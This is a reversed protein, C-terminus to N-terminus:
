CIIKAKRLSYFDKPHLNIKSLHKVDIWLYDTHEHDLTPIFEKSVTAFFLTYYKTKVHNYIQYDCDGIEEKTERVATEYDSENDESTGGAFNWMESYPDSKYKSRKIILTRNKPSILMIGAGM